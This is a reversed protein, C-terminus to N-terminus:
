ASALLLPQQDCPSQGPVRLDKNQVVGGTRHTGLCIGHDPIGNGIVQCVGGLDNAAAGLADQTARQGERTYQKRYQSYLQDNEPDYSFDKRNVIQGLM